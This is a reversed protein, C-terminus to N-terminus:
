EQSREGGGHGGRAEAMAEREERLIKVREAAIENAQCDEQSVNRGLPRGGAFKVRARLDIPPLREIYERLAGRMRAAQERLLHVEDRLKEKRFYLVSGAGKGQRGFLGTLLPLTWLGSRANLDCILQNLRNVVGYQGAVLDRPPYFPWLIVEPINSAKRLEEDFTLVM